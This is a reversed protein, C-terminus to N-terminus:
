FASPQNLCNMQGIRGFWTPHFTPVTEEWGDTGDWWKMMAHPICSMWVTRWWTISSQFLIWTACHIATETNWGLSIQSQPIIPFPCLDWSSSACTDLHTYVWVLEKLHHCALEVQPTLATIAMWEHLGDSAYMYAHSLRTRSHSKVQGTGGDTRCTDSPAHYFCCVQAQIPRAEYSCLLM